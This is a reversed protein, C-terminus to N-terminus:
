RQMASASRLVEDYFVIAKARIEMTAKVRLFRSQHEQFRVYIIDSNPM